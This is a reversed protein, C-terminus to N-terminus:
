DNRGRGGRRSPRTRSAHITLVGLPDVSFRQSVDLRQMREVGSISARDLATAVAVADFAVGSLREVCRVDGAVDTTCTATGAAGSLQTTGDAGTVGTLDIRKGAGVLVPPLDYQLRVAGSNEIRFKVSVPNSAVAALSPEVPVAYEGQLADASLADERTAEPERSDGPASCGFALAALLLTPLSLTPKM